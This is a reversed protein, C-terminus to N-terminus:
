FSEKELAAYKASLVKRGHKKFEVTIKLDDGFSEIKIISGKGMKKHTVKDGINYRVEVDLPADFVPLIDVQTDEIDGELNPKNVQKVPKRNVSILLKFCM